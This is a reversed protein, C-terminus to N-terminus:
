VLDRADGDSCAGDPERSGEDGVVAGADLVEEASELGVARVLDPAVTGVDVAGEGGHRRRLPTPPCALLVRGDTSEGSSSGGPGLQLLVHMDRYGERTTTNAAATATTAPGASACTARTKTETLPLSALTQELM